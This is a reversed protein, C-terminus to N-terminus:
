PFLFVMKRQKKDLLYILCTYNAWTIMYFLTSTLCSKKKKKDEVHLGAARVRLGSSERTARQGWCGCVWGLAICRSFASTCWGSPSNRGWILSEKGLKLGLSSIGRSFCVSEMPSSPQVEPGLYLWRLQHPGSLKYTNPGMFDASHHRFDGALSNLQQSSPTMLGAQATRADRCAESSM